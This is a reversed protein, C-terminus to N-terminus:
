LEWHRIDVSIDNPSYSTTDFNHTSLKEYKDLLGWYRFVDLENKMDKLRNITKECTNRREAMIPDEEVLERLEIRRSTHEIDDVLIDSTM